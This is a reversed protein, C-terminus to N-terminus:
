VPATFELYSALLIAAIKIQYPGSTLKETEAANSLFGCEVLIAPCNINKMLYISEGAPAPVRRNEPCLSCRLHNDAAAAFRESGASAAYLVQTGSPRSDPYYNQHISILAAADLSNVLAVRHQQDWVKKEHVSVAEAPYDLTEGTRTMLCNRGMLRCLDCLREAIALNIGSERIGGPSVAGGDLGGHGADIVLIQDSASFSSAKRANGGCGSLVLTSCVALALLFVASRRRISRLMIM